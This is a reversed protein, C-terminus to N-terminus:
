SAELAPTFGGADDIPRMAGNVLVETSRWDAHSPVIWGLFEFVPRWGDPKTIRGHCGRTGDGCLHLINSPTWPGGQSRFRRHHM